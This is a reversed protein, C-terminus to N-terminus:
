KIIYVPKQLKERLFIISVKYINTLKTKTQKDINLLIYFLTCETM